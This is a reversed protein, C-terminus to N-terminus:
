CVDKKFSGYKDHMIVVSFNRVLCQAVTVIVPAQLSSSTWVGAHFCLFMLLQHELFLAVIFLHTEYLTFVRKFRSETNNLVCCMVM